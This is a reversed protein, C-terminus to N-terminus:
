GRERLRRALRLLELFARLVVRPAAGSPTGARRPLHTVPLEVITCGRQVMHALLEASIMAGSAEPDIGALADRRVLKFACNVDRVPLRFLTGVLRNWAATNLRRRWPDARRERWGVVADAGDFAAAMRPLDRADFQGDGDMWFIADYRATLLGTRLAAGYGRNQAHRVVRVHPHRRTIADAVADTGDRSGDDVIVLEWRDAVSPLVALLGAAVGALSEVEDHVPVFATLGSLVPADPARLAAADRSLPVARGPSM